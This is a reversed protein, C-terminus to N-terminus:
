SAAPTSTAAPASATYKARYRFTGLQSLLVDYPPRIGPHWEFVTREFYQVTYTKGDLDSREQFEDSIPYGQQPLGGNRNWYDLFRGKVAKGTEPFLRSGQQAHAAEPTYAAVPAMPALLSVTLAVLAFRSRRHHERMGM